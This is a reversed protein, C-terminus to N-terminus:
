LLRLLWLWGSGDVVGVVSGVAAAAAFAVEASGLELLRLLDAVSRHSATRMAALSQVSYLSALLPRASQCYTGHALQQTRAVDTAVVLSTIYLCFLGLLRVHLGGSGSYIYIFYM